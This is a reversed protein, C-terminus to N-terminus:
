IWHFTVPLRALANVNKTQEWTQSVIAVSQKDQQSCYSSLLQRIIGAAPSHQGQSPCFGESIALLSKRLVGKGKCVTTRDVQLLNSGLLVSRSIVKEKEIGPM